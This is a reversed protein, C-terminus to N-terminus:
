AASRKARPRADSRARPKQEVATVHDDQWVLLPRRLAKAERASARAAEALADNIPKQKEFAAAVHSRGTMTPVM